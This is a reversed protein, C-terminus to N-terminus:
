GGAKLVKKDRLKWLFVVAFALLLGCAAAPLFGFLRPSYRWVDEDPQAGPDQIRIWRGSLWARSRDGKKMAVTYNNIYRMKPVSANKIRYVRCGDVIRLLELEDSGLPEASVVIDCLEGLGSTYKKVFMMNGNELPSPDEGLIATLKQRYKDSYLSDYGGAERIGYLMCMDPPMLANPTVTLSWRSNIFACRTYDLSKIYRVLEPEKQLFATDACAVHPMGFSLLDAATLLLAAAPVIHRSKIETFLLCCFVLLALLFVAPKAAAAWIFVGAMSQDIYEGTKGLWASVSAAMIVVIVALSCLLSAKRGAKDRLLDDLGFAAFMSAFFVVAFLLRNPGGMSNFGPLIYYLLYNLPSGCATLLVLALLILFVYREKKRARLTGAIGCLALFLPLIGVYACYEINDAETILNIRLDPLFLTALREGRFGNSVYRSYGEPSRATNRTSEGYLESSPLLQFAGAFLFASVFILTVLLGRLDKLGALLRWLVYFLSCGCVFIAIQLHGALVSAGLCLGGLAACYLNSRDYALCAFYLVAPLWAASYVLTPLELWSVMFGSLSYALAGLAAPLLGAKYRMLLLLTFLQAIYLHVFLLIGLGRDAGFVALLLNLPYFIASQGTGAFPTGSFEYPNYLPMEGKRICDAYFHRWNYFQLIGDAMLVNWGEPAPESSWPRMQKLYDGPVPTKGCFLPKYLFVFDVAALVILILVLKNKIMIM